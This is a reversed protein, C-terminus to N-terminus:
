PTRRPLTIIVRAGVESSSAIDITGGHAEVLRKCIALGLGTGRAKTTYFPEFAKDRQEPSFGPGDDSVVVRLGDRGNVPVISARITVRAAGKGASLANDLLNRFVQRLHFPCVVCRLDVGDIEELLEGGAAAPGLEAWAERWVEALDCEQLDLRVPAAFVRVDEFLRLLDDQAKEARNILDRAEDNEYVRMELMALCAMTRQLANRGEHALAASMQGITALREAKLAREQAEHLETVDHGLLVVRPASSPELLMRASWDIARRGDRKALRWVGGKTTHAATGVPLSTGRELAVAVLQQAAPRDAPDLLDWWRRGKLEEWSVGAAALVYSNCRLILGAADVVLVVAEVTDTLSDVLARERRLALEAQKRETIDRLLCRFGPYPTDASDGEPALLFDVFRLSGHNPQLVAEWRQVGGPWSLRAYFDSRWGHALFFALPKGALFERRTQLLEAAAHNAEQVVGLRDLVLYGVPAADFLEQYRLRQKLAQETSDEPDARRGLPHDSLECAAARLEAVAEALEAPSPALPGDLLEIVQMLRQVASPHAAVEVNM